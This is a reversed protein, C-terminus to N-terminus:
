TTKAACDNSNERKGCIALDRPTVILSITSAIQEPANRSYKIVCFAKGFFGNIAMTGAETRVSSESIDFRIVM